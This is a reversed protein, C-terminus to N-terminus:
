FPLDDDNLDPVSGGSFPDGGSIGSDNSAYSDNSNDQNGNDKNAFDRMPFDVSTKPTINFEHFYM